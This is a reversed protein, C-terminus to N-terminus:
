PAQVQVKFSAFWASVNDIDADSMPRAIVVMVEHPRKGSRFNRLQQALYIENQGALNAAEVMTAVGNAGHCMNCQAAALKKGAAADAAGAAASAAWLAMCLLRASRMM